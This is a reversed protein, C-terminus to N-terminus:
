TTTTGFSSAMARTSSRDVRAARRVPLCSGLRKSRRQGEYDLGGTDGIFCDQIVVGAGSRQVPPERNDPRVRRCDGKGAVYRV